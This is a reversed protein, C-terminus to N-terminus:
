LKIHRAVMFVEDASYLNKIVAEVEAGLTKRYLAQADNDARTTVLVHKLISNQTSLYAKVQPVSDEILKQGIGQGRHDPHVAMQELELVVESRFGSKQAWFIYGIIQDDVEAVFPIIKPFANFNACIWDQSLTQRPFSIEHVKAAAHVDDHSMSKVLM